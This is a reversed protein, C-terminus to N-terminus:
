PGSLRQRAMRWALERLIRVASVRALDSRGL